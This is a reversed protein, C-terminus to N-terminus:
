TTNTKDKSENTWALAYKQRQVVFAWEVSNYMTYVINYKITSTQHM